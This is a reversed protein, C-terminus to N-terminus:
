RRMPGERRERLRGALDAIRPDRDRIAAQWAKEVLAANNSTAMFTVAFLRVDPDTDNALMLLWAESGSGPQALVNDLMRMRAQSDDSFFQRVIPRSLKGFGRRGLEREIPQTDGNESALWTRLLERSDVGALPNTPLNSQGDATTRSDRNPEGGSNPSTNIPMAPLIRFVPPAGASRGPATLQSSLQDTTADGASGTRGRLENVSPDDATKSAADGGTHALPQSGAPPSFPTLGADASHAQDNAGQGGDSAAFGARPIAKRDLNGLAVGDFDSGDALEDPKAPFRGAGIATLVADCHVAVLPTQEAPFKDAIRVIKRSTAELWEHDSDSFDALTESLSKALQSLEGAIDSYRKKTEVERQWRRLLRDIAVQAAGATEHEDSAAATVLVPIPPSPMAALKHVAEIADRTEGHSICDALDAILDSRQWATLKAVVLFGIAVVIPLTLLSFRRRKSQPPVRSSRSRIQAPLYSPPNERCMGSTMLLM